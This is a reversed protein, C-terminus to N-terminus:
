GELLSLHEHVALWPLSARRVFVISEREISRETGHFPHEVVTEVTHVVTGTRDVIRAVRDLSQCDRVRYGLRQSADWQEIYEARSLLTRPASHFAFTAEPAFCAFYRDRDNTTFAEILKDLVQELENVEADHLAPSM